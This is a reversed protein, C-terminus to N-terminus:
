KCKNIRGSGDESEEMHNCTATTDEITDEIASTAHNEANATKSSRKCIKLLFRMVGCVTYWALDM